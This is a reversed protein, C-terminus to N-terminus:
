LLDKKPTTNSNDMTSVKKPITCYTYRTCKLSSVYFGLAAVMGAMCIAYDLSSLGMQRKRLNILQMKVEDSIYPNVIVNELFENSKKM